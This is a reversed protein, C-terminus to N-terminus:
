EKKGTKSDLAKLLAFAEEQVERELKGLEDLEDCADAVARGLKTNPNLSSGRVAWDESELLLDEEAFFGEGEDGVEEESGEGGAAHRTTLMRM